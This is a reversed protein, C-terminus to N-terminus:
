ISDVQNCQKYILFVLFVTQERHPHGPNNLFERTISHGPNFEIVRERERKERYCTGGSSPWASTPWLDTGHM